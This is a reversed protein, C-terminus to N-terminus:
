NPESRPIPVKLITALLTAEDMAREIRDYLPVFKAHLEQQAEANQLAEAVATRWHKEIAPNGCTALVAELAIMRSFCREYTEILKRVQIKADTEFPMM